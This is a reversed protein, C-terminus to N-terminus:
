GKKKAHRDLYDRLNGIKTDWFESFLAAWDFIERLPEPEIRYLRNRGAQRQAVLGAERLVALHRSLIPLEVELTNAITSVTQEGNRGLLELTARRTPDAIARFVDDDARPRGAM